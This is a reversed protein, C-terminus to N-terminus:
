EQRDIKGARRQRVYLFTVGIGVLTVLGLTVGGTLGDHSMEKTGTEPLFAVPLTPVPEGAPVPTPTPTPPPPPPPEDDDDDGGGDGGGGDPPPEGGGGDPPPEGGDPPPPGAPVSIDALDNLPAGENYHLTAVNRVQPVGESASNNVLTRLTINVQEGPALTGITVTFVQGAIQVPREPASGVSVIDLFSPVPDVVRVNTANTNGNNRATITFIVEDGPRAENVNAEKTIAPDVLVIVPTQVTDSKPGIQDSAITATNVINITTSGSVALTKDVQVKFNVCRTVKDAPLNNTRWRLGTTGTLPETGSWGSGDNYEVTPSTSASGTVYTTKAPISDTLVVGTTPVSGNNSYCLTYTLTQGPPVQGAPIVSKDLTLGPQAVITTTVTSRNNTPDPDTVDPPRTITATNTLNGSTSPDVTGVVTFVGVAGNNLDMTISITNGTGNAPPGCSGVGSVLNCSWSVGTIQPPVIDKFNAKTVHSPGANTVTVTYTIPSGAPLTAPGKKTVQLDAEALVVGGTLSIPDSYILTWTDLGKENGFNGSFDHAGGSSDLGTPPAVLPNPPTGVVPSIDSDDYYIKFDPLPAPGNTRELILGNPNSEPDLLPFHIEGSSLRIEAGYPVTGAPLPTGAGDLGDWFVMNNGSFASGLLIRDSGDGYTNNQNTDLIIQYSGEGVADFGFFGGLPSTGAQGPTGEQGTFEFNSATPPPTPPSLLWTTGGGPVAATAPLDASPPNLFIKHTVSVPTDPDRPNQFSVGAPLTNGAGLNISKFLRNSSAADVFGQNNAFLIFAFPDMGNLDFRYQYGDRTLILFRSNIALNNAGLNLPLYNAYVRGPIPTATADLVTVDWAAVFRHTLNPAPWNANALLPPPSVLAADIVPGTFEIEWVGEQGPNVTVVCPNYGGPLPGALEEARNNIRGTGTGACNGAAGDPARYLIDAVGTGIASSGLNITEGVRAYVKIVNARIIGANVRTTYELWPRYGGFATLERSGEAQAPQVGPPIALFGMACVLAIFGTVLGVRGYIFIFRAFRRVIKAM